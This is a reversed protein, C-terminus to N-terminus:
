HLAFKREAPLETSGILILLYILILIEPVSRLFLKDGTVQSKNNCSM